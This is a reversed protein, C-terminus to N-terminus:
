CWLSVVVVLPAVLVNGARILCICLSAFVFDVRICLSLRDTPRGRWPISRWPIGRRQVFMQSMEAWVLRICLRRLYLLNM